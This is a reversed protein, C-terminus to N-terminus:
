YASTGVDVIDAQIESPPVYGGAMVDIGIGGENGPAPHNQKRGIVGLFTTTHVEKLGEFRYFVCGAIAFVVYRTPYGNIKIRDLNPVHLNSWDGGTQNPFVSKTSTFRNEILEKPCQNAADAVSAGGVFIEAKMAISQAPSHGVNSYHVLVNTVLENAFIFFDHVEISDIQVWPRTSAILTTQAIDAQRRTQIFTKFAFVVALATFITTLFTLWNQRRWNYQEATRHQGDTSHDYQEYAKAPAIKKKRWQPKQKENGTNPDREWLWFLVSLLIAVVRVM